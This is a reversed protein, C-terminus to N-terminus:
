KKKKMGAAIKKANLELQKWERGGVFINNQM